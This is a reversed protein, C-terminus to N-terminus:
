APAATTAPATPAPADGGISKGGGGLGGLSKKAEPKAAPKKLPGGLGASDGSNM